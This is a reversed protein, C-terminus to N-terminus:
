SRAELWERVRPWGEEHAEPAVSLGVHTTPFEIVETDSSPVRDLFPMYAGSPVFKDEAGVVLLVPMELADLDVHEGNLVLENEMLANEEFLEEVIGRYTEGPVDMGGIAWGARRAFDEVFEEDDFNDYLRRPAGLTYEVPKRISLGLDLIPAPVTGFLEVLTEPDHSRVLEGFDFFGGETHYDLPPGQLVLTRVNEPSLAAYAVALPAGTSYGHLHVTDAESREFAADVCNRLYRDVFDDLTLAADLTTYDGWDVLYVEFGSELFQRVVSRDPRFDLISPENILPYTLFVPVDHKREEPEYRRLELKNERYVVEFPTRDRDTAAATMRRARDPALAAHRAPRTACELTHRQLDFM